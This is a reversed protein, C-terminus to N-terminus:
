WERQIGRRKGRRLGHEVAICPGGHSVVRCRHGDDEFVEGDDIFLSECKRSREFKLQVIGDRTVSVDLIPNPEEGARKVKVVFRKLSAGWPQPELAFEDELYSRVFNQSVMKTVVKDLSRAGTDPDYGKDALISCLVGDDPIDFYVGGALREEALNIPARLENAFRQIFTHCIVSQEGSSFPFFPIIAAVRGVLPFGLKEKLLANLQHELVFLPVDAQQTEIRDKMHIHHFKTIYEHGLNCAFIWITKSCDIEQKSRRDHYQGHDLPLLLCQRVQDITKEFEDLFVISRKGTHEALFNNLPSGKKHGQYPAKPGLLDTEHQMETCDVRLFDAELLAGMSRALETKGHGSPGTFLIALPTKSKVMYHHFILDSVRQTAITQGVIGYPMELLRTIKFVSAIFRKNQNPRAIQSAKFFFYRQSLNFNASLARRLDPTCWAYEDSPQASTEAKAIRGFDEWMDPPLQSPDAGLALLTKVVETTDIKDPEGFLIAYALQPIDWPLIVTDLSAGARRLCRILDPSNREIAFCMAPFSIDNVTSTTPHNIRGKLSDEDCKNLYSQIDDRSSYAQLAWALVRTSFFCKQCAEELTFQKESEENEDVYIETTVIHPLIIPLM